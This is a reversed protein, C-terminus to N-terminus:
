NNAKPKIVDDKEKDSNDKGEKEKEITKEYWDKPTKGCYEGDDVTSYTKPSM